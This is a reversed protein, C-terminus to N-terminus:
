IAPATLAGKGELAIRSDDTFYWQQSPLNDYCQWIKLGVGNGPTSGADLCFNTGALQVKTSGRNLFWRQAPTQNCDYIQVPTGNAFNAGRVDLCKEMIDNPHIMTGQNPFSGTPCFTIDFTTNGIPCRYYPPYPATSAPAPFRTPPQSFAFPCEAEDCQVAQCFGMRSPGRPTIQLGVNLHDPDVVMYYFDDPYFGARSTGIGNANGGNADTYFFGAGLPLFRTTEGRSPISGELNGAIYLNVASPCQNHIIYQRTNSQRPALPSALLPAALLLPLLSSFM